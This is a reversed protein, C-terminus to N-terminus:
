RVQRLDALRMGAMLLGLGYVMAGAGCIFLMAGIRTVVGMEALGPLQQLSVLLVAVMLGNGLLLARGLKGWQQDPRYVGLRRLGRYLLAANLCAAVSTALALGSHGLSFFHHLPLVLAINLLMNTAMAIIGIRVPTKMDQRAYYGPALVKILMFAILGLAYARLSWGAMNVDHGDFDRGDYFLATLLPEAIIVLAIAAPVAILLVFRMAWNLTRNFEEPASAVHQRALSPLIVTAAAVGFVGLPLEAMRDSYYLWSVSGTPLFSAIVTDLLLNIQSVSVGFMAPAMLTLIRRVGPHRWALRPRPLQHIRALFPLQFIMQVIGAALVGWALAYAPESVWPTSVLAAGILCVNLWVPTFAPVAFRDFSNLIAGAVGTLSIFLLYPFTIRVMDTTAQFRATDNWFGPAFVATLVPAGLVALVTLLILVSGLAAVVRDSLERVAAPGGKERYEALVPVFAQSFAGEAFLRRLFNPIKFAVFFADAFGDTGIVRAFVADRVLGLVRSIMTMAGVVASARLLGRAPPRDRSEIDPAKSM